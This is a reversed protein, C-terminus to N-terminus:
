QITVIKVVNGNSFEATDGTEFISSSDDWSLTSTDNSKETNPLPDPPVVCSIALEERAKNSDVDPM